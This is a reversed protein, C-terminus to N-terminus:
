FTSHLQFTHLPFTSHLQFTAIFVHQAISLKQGWKKGLFFVHNHLSFTSHLRTMCRFNMFRATHKLFTKLTRCTSVKKEILVCAPSVCCHLHLNIKDERFSRSTRSSRETTVIRWGRRRRVEAADGNEDEGNGTRWENKLSTWANMRRQCVQIITM